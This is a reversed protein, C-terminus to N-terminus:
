GTSDAVWRAYDESALATTVLIQPLEYGHRERLAGVLEDKRQPTTKLTVRWEPEERVEGNWCYVSEIAGIQACAALRAEVLGRALAIAAAHTAVTTDVQVVATAADAAARNM